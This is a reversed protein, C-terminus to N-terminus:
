NHLVEHDNCRDVWLYRWPVPIDMDGLPCPFIHPDRGEWMNSFVTNRPTNELGQYRSWTAWVTTVFVSTTFICVVVRGLVFHHFSGFCVLFHLNTKENQHRLHSFFAFAGSPICTNATWSKMECDQWFSPAFAFFRPNSLHRIVAYELSVKCRM